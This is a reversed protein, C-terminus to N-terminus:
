IQRAVRAAGQIAGQIYGVGDCDGISHVEPGLDAIAEALARDDRAGVALIVSDVAVAHRGGEEDAFSVGEDGIAEVRVQSLLDVGRERLQHLARWRRPPAMQAAFSTGEELVAVGRRVLQDGRTKASIIWACSRLVPSLILSTRSM